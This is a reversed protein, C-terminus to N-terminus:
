RASLILRRALAPTQNLWLTRQGRRYAPNHLEVQLSSIRASRGPDLSHLGLTLWMASNQRLPNAENLVHCDLGGSRAMITLLGAAMRDPRGM